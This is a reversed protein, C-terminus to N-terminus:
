LISGKTFFEEKSKLAIPAAAFTRDDSGRVQWTGNWSNWDEISVNEWEGNGSQTYFQKESLFKGDPSSFTKIDIASSRLRESSPEVILCIKGLISEESKEEPQTEKQLSCGVSEEKEHEGKPSISKSFHSISKEVKDETNTEVIVLISESLKSSVSNCVSHEEHTISESDQSNTTPVFGFTQQRNSSSVCAFSVEKKGFERSLSKSSDRFKAEYCINLLCNGM